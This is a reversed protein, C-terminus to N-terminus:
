KICTIHYTGDVDRSWAEAETCVEECYECVPTKTLDVNTANVGLTDAILLITPDSLSPNVWLGNAVRGGGMGGTVGDGVEADILYAGSGGRPSDEDINCSWAREELKMALDTVIDLSRKLMDVPLTAYITGGWDGELVIVKM